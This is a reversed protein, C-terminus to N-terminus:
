LRLVLHLTSEKQINYDELTRQRELQKGAFILRQKDPPIGEKDQIKMMVNEITDTVEVDLTLTKGTLTKVFIQMGGSLKLEPQGGPVCILGNERIDGSIQDSVCIEYWMTTRMAKSKSAHWGTKIKGNTIEEATAGCWLVASDLPPSFWTDTDPDLLTLGHETSGFSIAFLGPDGHPSVIAKGTSNKNYRVIDLMGYGVRKNQKNKDMFLCINKDNGM